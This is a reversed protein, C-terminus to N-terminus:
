SRPVLGGRTASRQTGLSDDASNCPQQGGGLRRHRYEGTGDGAQQSAGDDGRHESRIGIEWRQCGSDSGNPSRRCLDNEGRGCGPQENGGSPGPRGPFPLIAGASGNFLSTPDIVAPSDPTTERDIASQRWTEPDATLKDVDARAKVVTEDESETAACGQLPDLVVPAPDLRRCTLGWM